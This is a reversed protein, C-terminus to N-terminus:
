MWCRNSNDSKRYGRLKRTQLKSKVTKLLSV